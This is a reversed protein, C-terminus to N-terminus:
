RVRKIVGLFKRYIYDWKSYYIVQDSTNEADIGIRYNDVYNGIHPIGSSNTMFANGSNELIEYHGSYRQSDADYGLLYVLHSYAMLLKDNLEQSSLPYTSRM